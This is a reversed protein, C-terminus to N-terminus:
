IDCNSFSNTTLIRYFIIKILQQYLQQTWVGANRGKQLHLLDQFRCIILIIKQKIKVM